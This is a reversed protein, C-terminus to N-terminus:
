VISYTGDQGREVYGAIELNTFIEVLSNYDTESKEILEDIKAPSKELLRLVAAEQPELSSLLEESLQTKRKESMGESQKSKERPKRPEKLEHQTKEVEATYDGVYNENSFYQSYANVIDTFNYVPIAEGRLLPVVGNFRSSFLDHPPVCFVEREQEAAHNATLLAGSKEGAEIVLTGMSLGSIIRNRINFYNAFSRSYPLLESIIAGGNAIIDHKLQANEAPYNVLIGCGLVGITRGHGDLCAKHVEADTGVAMGSIIAIGLRSLPEIIRHTVNIGYDSVNRAGVASLTITRDLGALSGACFLVIPPNEIGRLLAPYEEDDLTIIRVNKAACTDALERVDKMHVSEANKKEADSLFDYKGDRINRCAEAADGGCQSLIYNTKRNFPQMVLLLWLWVEVPNKAM